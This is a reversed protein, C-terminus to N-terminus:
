SISSSSREDDDYDEEETKFIPTPLARRRKFTKLIPSPLAGGGGADHKITSTPLVKEMNTKSISLSPLVNGEVRM